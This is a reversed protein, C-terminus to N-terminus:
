VGGKPPTKIDAVKVLALMDDDDEDMGIEQFGFRAYFDKAMPNDPHYCIVIDTVLPDTIIEKLALTLGGRGFGRGQHKAEVMFRLITVKPRDEVDWMLFGVPIDEHYIARTTLDPFFSAEAISFANSALHDDQHPHVNLECVEEYNDRTIPRLSLSM